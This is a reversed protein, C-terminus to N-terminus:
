TRKTSGEAVTVVVQYRGEPFHKEMSDFSPEDCFPLPEVAVGLHRGQGVVWLMHLFETARACYFLTREVDLWDIVLQWTERNNSWKRAMHGLARGEHRLSDAPNLRAVGGVGAQMGDASIWVERNRPSVNFGHKAANYMDAGTLHLSAFRRLYKEINVSGALYRQRADATVSPSDAGQFVESINQINEQTAEHKIFRKNVAAKFDGPTRLRALEIPPCPSHNAHALYMRLLTEFLHHALVQSESTVFADVETQRNEGEPPTHTLTIKGYSRPQSLLGEIGSQSDAVALLTALRRRFYSSPPVEYFAENVIQQSEKAAAPV